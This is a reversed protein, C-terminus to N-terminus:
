AIVNWPEFSGPKPEKLRSTINDECAMRIRASTAPADFRFHTAPLSSEERAAKIADKIAFFASSALFLPPEGVAKSSYVARPNSVGKLLSVNFEAPIDSFGPIKYTGPGRTFIDGRPSYVMEELVFLGYGQMFGGEIQGIDIAPNLSEGLDMVIDTNIVQHDGTLTDIEVETCAAGYTFYNYLLGEGTKFNYGVEPTRYFGSVALNVRDLYASDVWQEWTGAPNADKYPRLREKLTSCANLLAMGNLDSGSSAATPSTNPVKDTATESIHIKDTSIDLARSAVQVMKTHLGQGMETGGHSILVSGDRYVLVLAGAQNLFLEAYAIGYKTPIISLGRKKYRNKRNFNRVKERRITYQSSDLCEKWCRGLTCDVLKQHYFTVDGEKYLNIESIEVPDKKLYYAIHQAMNEALFMGQPGGFGRFATNSPLNTKCAFGRVRIAPIFYANEFHTLAKEVVALTLDTSYGANAYLKADCGLIKGDDDFGVKYKFYFPHRTGTMMMDADRDLMCRLPKKFKRAAVAMPLAILSGKAQKGGFGGGLRKVKVVVKNQPIDLVEAVMASVESPNQTSSYILMEDDEPQPIVICAQTELYFHEQGGMRCEGEVVHQANRFALEVNGKEMVQPDGLFSKRKIADEISIIVPELEEYTVRVKKAARQALIQDDAVILGLIQGQATVTDSYFVEEDQIVCGWNCGERVDKASVFGRVGDMSLAESEDIEVIRAHAKTSLVFACYLAGEQHPIDDCYVAEGTAQKYASSHVIPKQLSDVTSNSRAPIAFYQSSKLEQTTYGQIGSLEKKDIEITPVYAQIKQSIALFARFFLSLTLSKRYQIMGGPAGPDLPIDELLSTFALELTDRNWPMGILRDQTRPASLAKFSMGGFGFNIDAIINSGPVFTVHVAENVIAIDDGRRRAQKYAQFYQNEKTFPILISLLIEEPKLISTRYGVFFKDDLIVRRVESNESVLELEARAAILLPIMDSIPSGTMINGGLAGVSRIQRGAFWNLMELAAQFIRTKYEPQSNVQLKLFTEINALTAAAGIKAGESVEEIRTMEPIQVPQIVIPYLMQKFKMEVGIETNGVVIKAKPFKRKLKLLENLTTPRYWTVRKGTVILYEKDYKDSLRLEPPFIPEQSPDYPTFESAKFLVDEEIESGNQFKCCNEGMGCATSAKTGIRGIEWEETFTKYGEIIPRYGTCRCLNGQFALEMEEITPKPSNRLLTYMSMVIGPTCFGCQSGHAKAIREQVPHLRTKTSGIGEITTVAQGHLSCIPALCANVPLHIQKELLVLSDM